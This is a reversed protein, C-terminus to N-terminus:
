MDLSPLAKIAEDITRKTERRLNADDKVNEVTVGRFALKLRKQMLQMNMDNTINCTEMMDIIENARDFVSAYIKPTKGDETQDSLQRSLTSLTTHLRQWIDDMAGKLQATFAAQYQERLADQAEREMDVRWDGAEPLPIYTMNFRFKKRLEDENPYESVVFLHGLKAQAQTIEWAYARLFVEVLRAFEDRLATIQKQYKFYQSTPLLRLGSDSWPMTASYHLTRVNAAFKQIADLEACDGLLRKSVSAVGKQANNLRTVDDSAAKDKKKGTWVSISLEVLMASSAITPASTNVNLATVNM